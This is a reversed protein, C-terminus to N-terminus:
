IKSTAESACLNGVSLNRLLYSHSLVPADGMSEQDPQLENTGTGELSILVSPVASRHHWQCEESYLLFVSLTKM